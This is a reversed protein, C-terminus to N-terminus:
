EMDGHSQTENTRSNQRYPAIRSFLNTRNLSLCTEHLAPHEGRWFPDETQTVREKIKSLITVLMVRLQPIIKHLSWYHLRYRCRPMTDQNEHYVENLAPLNWSLRLEASFYQCTEYIQQLLIEDPLEVGSFSHCRSHNDCFNIYETWHCLMLSAEAEFRRARLEQVCSTAFRSNGAATGLEADELFELNFHEEYAYVAYNNRVQEGISAFYIRVGASDPLFCYVPLSSEMWRQLIVVELKLLFKRKGREGDAPWTIKPNEKLMVALIKGASPININVSHFSSEIFRDRPCEHEFAWDAPAREQVLNWRAAQRAAHLSLYTSQM